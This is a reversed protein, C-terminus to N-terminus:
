SPRGQRLEAAQKRAAGALEVADEALTGDTDAVQQLLDAKRDFWVAREADSATLGPMSRLLASLDAAFSTGTM